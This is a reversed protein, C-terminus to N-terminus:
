RMLGFVNIKLASQTPRAFKLYKNLRGVVICTIHFVNTIAKKLITVMLIAAIEREMNSLSTFLGKYLRVTCVTTYIGCKRDHTIRPPM